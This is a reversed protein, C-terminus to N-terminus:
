KLGKLAILISAVAMGVLVAKFVPLTDPNYHAMYAAASISGAACYNLLKVV